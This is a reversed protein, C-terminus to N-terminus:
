GGNFGRKNMLERPNHGSLDDMVQEPTMGHHSTIADMSRADIGRRKKVKGHLARQRARRATREPSSV